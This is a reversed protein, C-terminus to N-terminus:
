YFELMGGKLRLGSFSLGYPNEAVEFRYPFLGLVPSPISLFWFNFVEPKLEVIGPAPMSASFAAELRRGGAVCSISLSSDMTVKLDAFQPFRASLYNEIAYETVKASVVRANGFGAAVPERAGAALELGAVRRRVLERNGLIQDAVAQRRPDNDIGRRQGAHGFGELPQNLLRVTAELLRTRRGIRQDHGLLIKQGM